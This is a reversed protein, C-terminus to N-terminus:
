SPPELLKDRAMMGGLAILMLVKAASVGMADEYACAWQLTGEPLGLLEVSREFGQGRGELLLELIRDAADNWRAVVEDEM